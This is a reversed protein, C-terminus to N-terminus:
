TEDGKAPLDQEVVPWGIFNGVREALPRMQECIDTVSLGRNESVRHIRLPSPVGEADPPCAELEM